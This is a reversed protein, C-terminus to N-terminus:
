LHPLEKIALIEATLEEPYSQGVLRSMMDRRERIESQVTQETLKGEESLQRLVEIPIM